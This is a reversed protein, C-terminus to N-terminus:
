LDRRIVFFHLVTCLVVSAATGRAYTELKFKWMGGLIFRLGKDVKHLCRLAPTLPIYVSITVKASSLPANDAERLRQREGLIPGGTGVSYSVSNAWFGM